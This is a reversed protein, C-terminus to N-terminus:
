RRGYRQPAPTDPLHLLSEVDRVGQVKRTKEVLDEIMEPTSVVGRLVVKGEEANVNIQGKPVDRDRFIQTEVKHALTADDPQPKPEEHLHTAKQKLGYVEAAVDRGLREARRGARRFCALTRDRGEHRRRRGSQPDFFYMLVAGLAAGYPRKM